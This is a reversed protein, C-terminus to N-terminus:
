SQAEMGCVSGVRFKVSAALETAGEVKRCRDSPPV